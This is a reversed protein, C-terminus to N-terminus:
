QRNNNNNNFKILIIWFRHTIRGVSVNDAKANHRGEAGELTM